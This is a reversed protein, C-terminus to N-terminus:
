PMHKQSSAFPRDGSERNMRWSVGEWCGLCGRLPLGPAKCWHHGMDNLYPDNNAKDETVTAPAAVSECRRGMPCMGWGECGAVVLVATHTHCSCAYTAFGGGHRREWLEEPFDGVAAGALSVKGVPWAGDYLGVRARADEDDALRGSPAHM